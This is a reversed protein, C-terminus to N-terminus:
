QSNLYFRLQALKVGQNIYEWYWDVFGAGFLQVTQNTAPITLSTLQSTVDTFTQQGKYRVILNQYSNCVWTQTAEDFACTQWSASPNNKPSGLARIWVSYSATSKPGTSSCPVLTYGTPAQIATNCPLQFVAGTAQTNTHLMLASGDCKYALDWANGDCVQFDGQVLWITNGPQPSGPAPNTNTDNIAVFITNRNSGTMPATKPNDVGILNLNVHPGSLAGNGNGGNGAWAPLALALVLAISLLLVSRKM